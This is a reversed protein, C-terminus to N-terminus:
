AEQRVVSEHAAPRTVERAVGATIPRTPRTAHTSEPNLISAIGNTSSHLQREMLLSSLAYKRCIMRIKKSVCFIRLNTTHTFLVGEAYKRRIKQMNHLVNHTYLAYINLLDRLYHTFVAHIIKVIRLDRLIIQEYKIYIRCSDLTDNRFEAYIM